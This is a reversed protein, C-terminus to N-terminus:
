ICALVWNELELIGIPKDVRRHIENQELSRLNRPYSPRSPDELSEGLRRMCENNFPIDKCFRYFYRETGLVPCKVKRMMLDRLRIIKNMDVIAEKVEGLKNKFKTVVFPMEEFQSWPLCRAETFTKLPYCIAGHCSFPVNNTRLRIIVVQCHVLTIVMLEAQSLSDILCDFEENLDTGRFLNTTM